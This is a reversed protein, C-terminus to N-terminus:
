SAGFLGRSLRLAYRATERQLERIAPGPLEALPPTGVLVLKSVRDPHDAALRTAVAGGIDMGVLTVSQLQLATLARDLYESQARISFDADFPRDSEGYGFLDIAFATAHRVAVM